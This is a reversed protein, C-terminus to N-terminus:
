EVATGALPTNSTTHSPVDMCAQESDRGGRQGQKTRKRGQQAHRCGQEGPQLHDTFDHRADHQYSNPRIKYRNNKCITKASHSHKNLLTRQFLLPVQLPVRPTFRSNDLFSTPPNALRLTTHIGVRFVHGEEGKEQVV